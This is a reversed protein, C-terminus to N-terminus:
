RYPGRKTGSVHADYADSAMDEAKRLIEESKRRLLNMKDASRQRLAKAMVADAERYLVHIDKISASKEEDVLADKMDEWTAFRRARISKKGRSKAKALRHMGDAVGGNPAIIMPYRLDASNIRSMHGHQDDQSALIEEPTVDGTWSRSTMYSDADDSDVDLQSSRIAKALEWLKRVSYRDGGVDFIQDEAQKVASTDIPLLTDLQKRMAPTFYFHAATPTDGKHFANDKPHTVSGPTASGMAITKTGDPAFRLRDEGRSHGIWVDAPPPVTYPEGADHIVDFGRRKLHSEVREYLRAAQANYQTYKPNGHIIVATQARKMLKDAAQKEIEERIIQKIEAPAKRNWWKLYKKGGDDMGRMFAVRRKIIERTEPHSPDYPHLEIDISDQIAKLIDSVQRVGLPQIDNTSYSEKIRRRGEIAEFDDEPVEYLFGSKGGYTDELAGPRMERLVMRTIKDIGQVSQNIDRDGWKRGAYALAFAESPSAFIAAPFRPDNSESRPNLIESRRPSGHYLIGGSAAQKMLEDAFGKFFSM